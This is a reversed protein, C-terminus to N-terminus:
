DDDDDVMMCPNAALGTHYALSPCYHRSKWDM